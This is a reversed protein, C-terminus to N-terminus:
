IQLVGVVNLTKRVSGVQFITNASVRRNEISDAWGYGKAWDIKYDKIVAISLGRVKYHQMREHITETKEGIVKIEGSLSKEVKEIRNYTKRSYPTQGFVSVQFAMSFTVAILISKVMHFVQKQSIITGYAIQEHGKNILRAVARSHM